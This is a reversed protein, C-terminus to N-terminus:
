VVDKRRFIFRVFVMLLISWALGYVLALATKSFEMGNELFYNSHKNFKYFNPVIWDVVSVWSKFSASSSSKAFYYLDPIWAGLMYISFTMILSILPRVLLSFFMALALVVVSEVWLLGIIALHNTWSALNELNLLFGLIFYLIFYLVLNIGVIGLFKGIIFESRSIPKSLILLCTQREVERSIVYAGFFLSIGMGSLQTALYGFDALIKKQEDFSLSGLLSSLIILIVALFVFVFFIREHMIELFTMRAITFSKKM